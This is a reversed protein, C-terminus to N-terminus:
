HIDTGKGGSVVFCKATEQKTKEEGQEREGSCFGQPVTEQSCTLPLLFCHQPVAPLPLIHGAPLQSSCAPEEIVSSPTVSGRWLSPTKTLKPQWLFVGCVSHNLCCVNIEWLDIELMHRWNLYLAKLWLTCRVHCFYKIHFNSPKQYSATFFNECPRFRKPSKQRLNM